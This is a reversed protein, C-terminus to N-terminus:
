ANLQYTILEPMDGSERAAKYAEQLEKARLDAPWRQAIQYQSFQKIAATKASLVGLVWTVGSVVAAVGDTTLEPLYNAKHNAVAAVASAATVGLAGLVRPVLKKRLIRREAATREAELKEPGMTIHDALASLGQIANVSLDSAHAKNEEYRQLKEEHHGPLSNEPRPPPESLARAVSGMYITATKGYSHRSYVWSYAIMSGAMELPTVNRQKDAASLYITSGAIDANPVGGYALVRGMAGANADVAAFFPIIGETLEPPVIVTPEADIQPFQKM